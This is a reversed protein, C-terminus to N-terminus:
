AYAAENRPPSAHFLRRGSGHYRRHLGGWKVWRNELVRVRHMQADPWAICFDINSYERHGRAVALAAAAASCAPIQTWCLTATRRARVPSAPGQRWSSTRDNGPVPQMAVSPRCFARDGHAPASRLSMLDLHTWGGPM